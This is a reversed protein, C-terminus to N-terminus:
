FFFYVIEDYYTKNVTKYLFIKLEFYNSLFIIKVSIRPMKGWKHVWLKHNTSEMTSDMSMILDKGDNVEDQLKSSLRLHLLRVNHGSVYLLILILKNFM